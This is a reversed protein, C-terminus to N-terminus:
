GRGRSRLIGFIGRTIEQRLRDIAGASQSDVTYVDPLTVVMSDIEALSGLAIDFFRRMERPGLKANGEAINNQVSWAARRLQFVTLYREDRPLNRTFEYTSGVLQRALRWVPLRRHTDMLPFRAGSNAPM